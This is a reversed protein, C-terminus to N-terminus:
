STHDRTRHQVVVDTKPRKKVVSPLREGPPVLKRPVVRVGAQTMAGQLKELDGCWQQEREVDERRADVGSRDELRVVAARVEDDLVVVQVAHGDWESRVLRMRDPSGSVTAFGEDVQYGLDALTSTVSRRVYDRELDTRVRETARGARERLDPDFARRGAVVETLDARVAVIESDPGDLGEPLAQLTTAAAVADARRAQARREARQVRLRLEDLLIHHDVDPRPVAVQAAAALVDARDAPDADVPLRDVIRTVAALAETPPTRSSVVQAAMAQEYREFAEKVTVPRKRDVSQRLVALVAVSSRSVLEAEVKAIAREISECWARMQSPTEACPALPGPLGPVPTSGAARRVVDLRSNVAIVERAAEEWELLAAHDAEWVARSREAREGVHVLGSGLAEVSRAAVLAGLQIGKGALWVGGVVAAGGLLVAGGVVAGVGYGVAGEGSM